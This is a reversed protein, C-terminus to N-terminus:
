QQSGSVYVRAPRLVKGHMRYGDQAISLVIGEERGEAPMTGIAESTAPDFPKDTLEAAPIPELGYRKLVELLQSRIMAMGQEAPSGPELTTRALTFSDLVLLMDEILSSMGVSIAHTVREAEQRKYNILDAKARQWGDRYEDREKEVPNVEPTVSEQEGQSNHEEEM